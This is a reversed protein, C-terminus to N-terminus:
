NGFLFLCFSFFSARHRDLVEKIGMYRLFKEDDLRVQRHIFVVSGLLRWTGGQRDVHLMRVIQLFRIGRIASTAFVQGNSGVSLVVMSAVVVILDSFSSPLIRSLYFSGWYVTPTLHVVIISRLTYRVIIFVLYVWRTDRHERNEDGTSTMKVSHGLGIGDRTPSSRLFNMLSEVLSHGQLYALRSVFPRIRVIWNQVSAVTLIYHSYRILKTGIAVWRHYLDTKTHITVPWLLGHVKIQLGREMVSRSVRGRLVGGSM